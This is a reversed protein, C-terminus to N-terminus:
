RDNRMCAFHITEAKHLRHWQEKDLIRRMKASMPGDYVLIGGALKCNRVAPIFYEELHTVRDYERQDREQETMPACGYLLILTLLVIQLWMLRRMQKWNNNSM